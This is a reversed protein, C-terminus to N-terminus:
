PIFSQWDPNITISANTLQDAQWHAFLSDEVFSHDAEEIPREERSNVRIVHWGFQTEVPALIIGIEADKVADAFEIVYFVVPREGLNGGQQGSSIDISLQQALTAFDEGLNILNIIDQAVEQSSVLIHDINAYLTTQVDEVVSESVLNYLAQRCFFTTIESVPTGGTLISQTFNNRITDREEPSEEETTFTTFFENVTSDFMESSVSLNNAEAYQWIVADNSLEDLVRNGLLEPTLLESNMQQILSDQSMILAPDMEFALAQENIQAVRINYKIITYVQEFRFRNAFIEDTFQADNVSMVLNAVDAETVYPANCASAEEQAFATTNLLLLLSIIWLAHKM